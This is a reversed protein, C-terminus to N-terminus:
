LTHHCRVAEVEVIVATVDDHLHHHSFNGVADFLTNLIGAPMEQQHGRLIGLTREWGCLEGDPSAAEIIGDTFLFILDGSELSVAPGIPHEGTTAIGLPVGTSQLIAKTQGQRDLVYGSCHGASTYLLSRSVPEIQVVLLTVFGEAIDNALRNNTVALLTGIDLCTLALARVYARTEAMVLAAAIGHGSADAVLVLLNEKGNAIYPVFDFCDGGM